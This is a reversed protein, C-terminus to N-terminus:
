IDVGTSRVQTIRIEKIAYPTLIVNDNHKLRMHNKYTRKQKYGQQCIECFFRQGCEKVHSRLYRVQTYQVNCCLPCRFRDEGNSNVFLTQAALLANDM